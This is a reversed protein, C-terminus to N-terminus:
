SGGPVLKSYVRLDDRRQWGTADWFLEGYPNDDFVFAHCKPIGARALAELSRSVLRKGLGTRRHDDTVALHYIYGRRGDTGCLITGVLRNSHLACFSLGPNRALFSGLADPSDASSLGIHDTAQWFRLAERIRTETFPTITEM